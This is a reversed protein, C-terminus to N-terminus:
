KAYGLAEALYTNTMTDEDYDIRNCDYGILKVGDKEAQNSLEMTMLDYVDKYEWHTSYHRKYIRLQWDSPLLYHGWKTRHKRYTITSTSLFPAQPSIVETDWTVPGLSEMTVYESGELSLQILDTTGDPKYWIFATDSM